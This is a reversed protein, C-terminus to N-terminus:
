GGSAPKLCSIVDGDKLKQWLGVRNGDIFYAVAHPDPFKLQRVVAKLRSGVPVHLIAGNYPDYDQVVADKHLGSLLKINISIRKSSGWM